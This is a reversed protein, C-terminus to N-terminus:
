GSSRLLMTLISILSLESGISTRLAVLAGDKDFSSGNGKLGEVEEMGGLRSGWSVGMGGGGERGGKEGEM